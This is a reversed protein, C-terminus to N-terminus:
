IKPPLPHFPHNSSKACLMIVKASQRASCLPFSSYGLPLRHSKISHSSLCAFAGRPTDWSPPRKGRAKQLLTVTPNQSRPLQTTGLHNLGPASFSQVLRQVSNSPSAPIEPPKEFGPHAWPPQVPPSSPESPNRTFRRRTLTPSEFPVPRFEAKRGGLQPSPGASRPTWVPPPPPLPIAGDSSEPSKPQSESM